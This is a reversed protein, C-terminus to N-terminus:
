SFCVILTCLKNKLQYIGNLKNRTIANHIFLLIDNYASSRNASFITARIKMLEIRLVTVQGFDKPILHQGIDETIVVKAKPRPPHHTTLEDAPAHVRSTDQQIRMEERTKRVRGSESMDSYLLTMSAGGSSDVM